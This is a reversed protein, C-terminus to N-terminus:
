RNLQERVALNDATVWVEAIRGGAVRYFAFEQTRVARGSVHTGTDAFHAAILDGDILLHRLQWRYDPFARIVDRLGAVYGDLGQPLGNVV